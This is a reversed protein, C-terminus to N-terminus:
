APPPETRRPVYPLEVPFDSLQHSTAAQLFTDVWRYINQQRITRRLAQMRQARESQPMRFADWLAQATADIDHPNVLLAGHQLQAAAGAFESLILVSNHDLSCACFEKSVLNMGDKLPTVLAIECTRYYAVLEVRSLSRFIYHIPTWGASTFRGNVRGILREIEDRLRKYEAVDTRSPVVVQVFTINRRLEPFRELARSLARIREPIGKSYDLRDLGLVLQRRPLSEHILWAKQAVEATAAFRAFDDFDISIPFAGVRIERREPVGLSVVAGAGRVRSGPLLARVCQLFNRRDRVTQFGVLDYDLLAELLQFRWPLKFFLDPPPFPIHLFFGARQRLGLRRAERGLLILHYDHVWLYDEAGVHEAVAAAFKANVAEYIPWYDPDFNCRSPLDHFLPWLIENAFGQYYGDVEDRTLPVDRLTYGVGEVGAALRLEVERAQAAPTGAWGIWLGGRDRLVPAMATVLGGAGPQVRWEGQKSRQLVVPLRNSVVVLRGSTM